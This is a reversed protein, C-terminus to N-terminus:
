IEGILELLDVLATASGGLICTSLNKVIYSAFICSQIVRRKLPFILENMIM